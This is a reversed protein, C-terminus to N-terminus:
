RKTDQDDSSLAPDFFRLADRCQSEIFQSLLDAVPQNNAPLFRHLSELRMLVDGLGLQRGAERSSRRVFLANQTHHCQAAAVKQALWNSVDLVIHAPDDENALRPRPHQDFAGSIGYMSLGADLSAAYVAKHVLIHAPHGYEGNSGHSLLVEPKVQDIVARIEDRLRGSEAKFALGEQGVEITPDIYGLFGTSIGGLTKVACRLEEERVRGLEHREALPPEGLEGGEGRTASVIHLEAGRSTLMALTGGILITEDDPHAFFALIRM